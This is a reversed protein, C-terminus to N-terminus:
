PSATSFSPQSQPSPASPHQAPPTSHPTPDRPQQPPQQPSSPPYFTFSTPARLHHKTKPDPKPKASEQNRANQYHYYYDQTCRINPTMKRIKVDSDAIAIPNTTLIYMRHHIMSVLVCRAIHKWVHDSKSNVVRLLLLRM